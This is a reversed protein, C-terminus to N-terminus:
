ISASILICIASNESANTYTTHTLTNCCKFLIGHSVGRRFLKFLLLGLYPDFRTGTTQETNTMLKIASAISYLVPWVNPKM